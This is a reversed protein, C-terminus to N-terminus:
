VSAITSRSQLWLTELARVIKRLAAPPNVPGEGVLSEPFSLRYRRGQSRRVEGALKVNTTGCRLRLEVASGFALRPVKGSDFEILMGCFGIDLPRPTWVKKDTTVLKLGLGTDELDRLPVCLLGQDSESSVLKPKVGRKRRVAMLIGRYHRLKHGGPRIEPIPASWEPDKRLRELGEHLSRSLAQVIPNASEHQYIIGKRETEYTERLLAVAEVVHQDQFSTLDEGYAIIQKELEEILPKFRQLSDYLRRQRVPDGQHQLQNIYKKVSQYTQGSTLYACDSPCAVEVVRKEGCCQACIERQKAPCFRKGKRKGCLICKM